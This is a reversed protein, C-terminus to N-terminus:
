HRLIAGGPGVAWANTGSAWVGYLPTYPIAVSTWSSGGTWHWSGLAGVAWVDSQSTGAVDYLNNVGSIDGSYSALSAGNSHWVANGDGVMWIDTAGSAWVGDLSQGRNDAHSTSSWTGFSSDWQVYSDDNGVAWANSPSIAFISSLSDNLGASRDSWASGNWHLAVGTLSGDGGVVWVDNAASGHVRALHATTGSAVTSWASGNWHALVGPDGVAWV